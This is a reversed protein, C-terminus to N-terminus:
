PPPIKPVAGNSGPAVQLSPSTGPQTASRFWSELGGTQRLLNVQAQRLLFRADLVTLYKDREQLRSNQEDRPTIPTGSTSPLDLQVTLVDLQQEALKQDLDAVEARAALELTAHETRLRGETFLDRQVEADHQARSAEAATQRAQARHGYDLVPINVQLGIGIANAPFPLLNGANDRRGFYELYNSNSFTSIRTYQAAFSVQPRFLYRADGFAQERKSRASAFAADVGPSIPAAFASAGVPAQPIAPISGAVLALNEAPLGTLHALRGRDVAIEDQAQLLKLRIQALVLRSTTLDIPTDQGGDVRDQVISVLRAAYGQQQRITAERALDHDLALCTLITDEAVAQRAETLALNAADLGARASRIYDRQSYSFVLSQSQINFLTPQGLPFGYSKGYGSGGIFVSPIFVDHTQQLSALAKAADDEAVHVRPSSRLALNVASSLSVQAGAFRITALAFCSAALTNLVLNSAARRPRRPSGPSPRAPHPVTSM